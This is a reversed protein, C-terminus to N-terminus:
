SCPGLGGSTGNHPHDEPGQAPEDFCTVLGVDLRMVKNATLHRRPNNTAIVRVLDDYLQTRAGQYERM